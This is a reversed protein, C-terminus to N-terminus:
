KKMVNLVDLASLGKTIIHCLTKLEEYLEVADIDASDNHTLLNQLDKCLQLLKDDSVTCLDQINYLFGFTASHPALQTFRDQVSSLAVDVLTYFFNVKFNQEPSILCEDDAEYGSLKRKKRPRVEDAGPFKLEVDLEEALETATVKAKKYGTARYKQLLKSVQEVKVLVDYWVVLVILFKASKMASSLSAAESYAKPDKGKTVEAVSVLADYVAGVQYRVAKVSEVRCEWRTECLPKVTLGSVNDRFIKYRQTSSTFLTYMRQLSGFFSVADISSKAADGIVLNLNHCGCPVFFARPNLSLIRAQVGSHKGKMNSGNDYGQGRCNKLPVGLSKLENLVIDTLFGGTTETVQLFSLFYEKVEVSENCEAIRVTLSMQEQHSCDPTCDLIISYYKADRIKKLITDRVSKSMLMILENQITKGLYHDHIEANSIRRLHEQIVPDFEGLLQVLGLFNGNCSTFLRDESGRFALNHQSLYQCIALLRELVNRWYKRESEILNERHHDITSSNKLRLHLDSWKAAAEKHKVSREHEILKQGLNKWDCTGTSSLAVLHTSCVPISDISAGSVSQAGCVRDCKANDGALDSGNDCVESESENDTCGTGPNEVDIMCCANSPSQCSNDSEVPRSPSSPVEVDVMRCANSPSQCSSDSEGPRSPSSPVESFDAEQLMESDRDQLESSDLTQSSQM